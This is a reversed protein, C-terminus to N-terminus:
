ISNNTYNIEKNIMSPTKSWNAGVMVNLNCKIPAIPFGYSVHTRLTAYGDMNEYSTIQTPRYPKGMEDKPIAIGNMEDPMAWGKANYLTSGSIANQYYEGRIMAMFAQGKDALSLIYRISGSHSYEPALNSNGVSINNPSSVDFINHLQTHYLDLLSTRNLSFNTTM